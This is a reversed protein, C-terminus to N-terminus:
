YTTPHGPIESINEVDEFIIKKNKKVTLPKVAEIASKVVEEPKVRGKIKRKEKAEVLSLSLLDSVLNTM